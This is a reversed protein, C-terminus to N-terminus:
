TVHRRPAWEAGRKMDIATPPEARHECLRRRERAAIAVLLSILPNM